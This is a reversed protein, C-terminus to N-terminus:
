IKNRSYNIAIVRKDGKDRRFSYYDNNCFTCINSTSLEKCGIEKIKKEIIKRLNLYFKNDRKEIFGSFREFKELMDEKIELHCVGIGPGVDFKLNETKEGLIRVRETLEELIGREVGRWGAHIIGFINESQFSVPFCDAVIVGVLLDKEKTVLGDADKIISGMDEKEVVFINKGHIQEGMVLNKCDLGERHLFSTINEVKTMTGDKKESIIM